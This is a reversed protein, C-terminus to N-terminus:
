DKRKLQEEREKRKRELEENYEMRKREALEEVEAFSAKAIRDFGAECWEYLSVFAWRVPDEIIRWWISFPWFSMWMIIDDRHESATPTRAGFVTGTISSRLEDLIRRRKNRLYVQWRVASWLLGILLYLAIWGILSLPNQQAYVVALHFNGWSGASMFVVMGALFAITAYVGNPRRAEVSITIAGLAIGILIWFWAGGLFM